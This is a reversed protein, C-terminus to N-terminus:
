ESGNKPKPGPKQKGQAKRAEHEAQERRALEAPTVSLVRRAVERFREAPTLDEPLDPPPIRM